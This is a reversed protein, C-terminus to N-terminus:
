DDDNHRRNKRIPFLYIVIILVILLVLIEKLDEM